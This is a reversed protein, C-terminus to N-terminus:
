DHGAGLENLHDDEVDQSDTDRCTERQQRHVGTNLGTLVRRVM